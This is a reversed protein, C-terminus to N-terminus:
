LSGKDSLRYLLQASEDDSTTVEETLNLIQLTNEVLKRLLLAHVGEIYYIKKRYIFKIMREKPTSRDEGTGEVLVKMATTMGEQTSM